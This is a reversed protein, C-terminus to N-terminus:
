RTFRGRMEQGGPTAYCAACLRLADDPSQWEARIWPAGCLSCSHKQEEAIREAEAARTEEGEAYWSEWAAVQAAVAAQVAALPDDFSAGTAAIDADEMADLLIDYDTEGCIYVHAIGGCGDNHVTVEGSQVADTQNDAFINYQYVKLTSSSYVTEEVIYGTYM